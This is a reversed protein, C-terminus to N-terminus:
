RPENKKFIPIDLFDVGEKELLKKEEKTANGRINKPEEVGYHIKLATKAFEHGVNEFNKEVYSSIKQLSDKILKLNEDAGTKKQPLNFDSKKIYGVPSLQKSICTNACLPCSILGAESQSDFDSGTEFWGEFKHGNECILDYTIM